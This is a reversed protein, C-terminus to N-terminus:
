EVGAHFHCNEGPSASDTSGVTATVTVASASSPTQSQVQPAAYVLPITLLGFVSVLLTM